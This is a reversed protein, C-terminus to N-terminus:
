NDKTIESPDDKVPFDPGDYGWQVDRDFCARCVRKGQIELPFSVDLLSNFPHRAGEDRTFADCRSCTYNPNRGDALVYDPNSLLDDVLLFYLTEGNVKARIELDDPIDKTENYAWVAYDRAKPHAASLMHTSEPSHYIPKYTIKM